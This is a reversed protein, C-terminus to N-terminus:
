PEDKFDELMKSNIIKFIARSMVNGVTVHSAGIRKGIDRLPMNSNDYNESEYKRIVEYTCNLEEESDVWARCESVPCSV